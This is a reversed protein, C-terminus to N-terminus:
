DDNYIPYRFYYKFKRNSSDGTFSDEGHGPTISKSSNPVEIVNCLIGGEKGEKDCLQQERIKMLDSYYEGIDFELDIIKYRWRQNNNM